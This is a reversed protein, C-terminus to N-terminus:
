RLLYGGDVTVTTGTIYSEPQVLLLTAPALDEPDAFRALPIHDLTWERLEERGEIRELARRTATFGPALANVRIGFAGLELAMGRVLGELGAKSTTYHVKRELPQQALQSTVFTMSGRIGRAVMHRAVERGVLFAGELNVTLVRRWEDDEIELFPVDGTTGAVHVLADIGGLHEVVDTVRDKVAAADTVDLAFSRVVPPLSSASAGLLDAVAVDAGSDVLSRTLVSGIGGAGGTVLVRLGAISL